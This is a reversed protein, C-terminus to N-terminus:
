PVHRSQLDKGAVYLKSDIVGLGLNYRGTPMDPLVSFSARVTVFSACLLVVAAARSTAM